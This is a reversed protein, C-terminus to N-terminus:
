EHRWAAMARLHRFSLVARPTRFDALFGVYMTSGDIQVVPAPVNPEANWGDNLRTFTPIAAM